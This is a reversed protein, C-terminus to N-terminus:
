QSLLIILSLLQPANIPPEPTRGFSASFEMEACTPPNLFIIFLEAIWVTISSTFAIIIATSPITRPVSM